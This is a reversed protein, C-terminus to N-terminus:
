WFNYFVQYNQSLNRARTNLVQPVASFNLDRLDRFVRDNSNLIVKVKKKSNETLNIPIQGSDDQGAGPVLAPDLDM